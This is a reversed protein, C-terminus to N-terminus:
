RDTWLLRRTLPDDDRIELGIATDLVVARTVANPRLDLELMADILRVLTIEDLDTDVQLDCGFPSPYRRPGHRIIM